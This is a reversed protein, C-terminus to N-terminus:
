HPRLSRIRGAASVKKGMKKIADSVKVRDLNSRSPYVNIGLKELNKLKKYREKQLNELAM